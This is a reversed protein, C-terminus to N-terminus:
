LRGRAPHNVVVVHADIDDDGITASEWGHTMFLTLVASVQHAACEAILVGTPSLWRWLEDAVRRHLDLGDIGGDLAGRPEYRQAERPLTAIEDRPVYPGNFVVVDFAGHVSPSLAGFLDGQIIDAGLNRLNTRAFTLAVPDIDCATLTVPRARAVALGIAGVGCALDLVQAGAVTHAIAVDVVLETRRRPIFAGPGVAIRHGCFHAYGLVYELPEGDCRRSVLEDVDRGDAVAAVLLHAEEGAYVCGARRLVASIRTHLADV